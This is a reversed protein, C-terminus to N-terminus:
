NIQLGVWFEPSTGLANALDLAIAETISNKGSIIARLMSQTWSGSLHEVFESQMLDLPILFEDLLLRGPPTPRRETPLM